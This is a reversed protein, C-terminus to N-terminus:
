LSRHFVNKNSAVYKFRIETKTCCTDAASGTKKRKIEDFVSGCFNLPEKMSPKRVKMNMKEGCAAQVTVLIISAKMVRAM